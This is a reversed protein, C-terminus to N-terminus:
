ENKGGNECNEYWGLSKFLQNLLLHEELSINNARYDYSPQGCSYRKYKLNIEITKNVGPNSSNSKESIIIIPQGIGVFEEGSHYTITYGKEEFANLVELTEQSLDRVAQEENFM